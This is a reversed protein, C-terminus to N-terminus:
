INNKKIGFSYFSKLLIDISNNYLTIIPYFHIVKTSFLIIIFNHKQFCKKWHLKFNKKRMIHWGDVIENVYYLTKDKLM